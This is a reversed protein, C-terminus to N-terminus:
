YLRILAAVIPIVMIIIMINWRENWMVEMIVKHFKDHFFRRKNIYATRKITFDPIFAILVKHYFEKLIMFMQM